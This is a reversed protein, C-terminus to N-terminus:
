IYFPIQPLTCPVARPMIIPNTQGQWGSMNPVFTWTAGNNISKYVENGITGYTSRAILFITEGVTFLATISTTTSLPYTSHPTSSAVMTWTTGDFNWVDNLRVMIIKGNAVVLNHNTTGLFPAITVTWNMGDSSSIVDNLYKWVGNVQTVGGIIYIKGNYSVVQHGIRGYSPINSIPNWIIGDSSRHILTSYQGGFATFGCTLYMYQKGNSTHTCGERRLIYKGNWTSSITPWNILDTSKHILKNDMVTFWANNCFFANYWDFPYNMQFFYLSNPNPDVWTTIQSTGQSLISGIVRSKCGGPYNSDVGFLAIDQGTM